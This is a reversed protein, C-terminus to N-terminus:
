QRFYGLLNRFCAHERGDNGFEIVIVELLERKIMFSNELM